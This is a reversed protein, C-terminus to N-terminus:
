YCLFRTVSWTPNPAFTLLADTDSVHAWDTGGLRHLQVQIRTLDQTAIRSLVKNRLTDCSSQMLPVTIKYFQGDMKTCTDIDVGLLARNMRLLNVIPHGEHVFCYQCGPIHLVDQTELNNV